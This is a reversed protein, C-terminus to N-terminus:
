PKSIETIPNGMHMLFPTKFRHTNISTTLSLNHSGMTWYQLIAFILLRSSSMPYNQLDHDTPIRMSHMYVLGSEISLPIVFGESTKIRQAGCVLKSRDDVQYNFWEMQGVAHISRGKGLHAYEHFVGIIPGRQTDLLAAATVVNLGTLEHDFIGVINIKRPTTHIVRM